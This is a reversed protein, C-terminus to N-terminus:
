FIVEVAVIGLFTNTIDDFTGEKDETLIELLNIGKPVLTQHCKCISKEFVPLKM